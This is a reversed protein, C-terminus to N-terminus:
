ARRMSRAAELLLVEVGLPLAVLVAHRGAELDGLDLVLQRQRPLGLDIGHDTVAGRERLVIATDALQERLQPDLDHVRLFGDVAVGEAPHVQQPSRAVPASRRPRWGRPRRAAFSGRTKFRMKIRAPPRSTSPPTRATLM